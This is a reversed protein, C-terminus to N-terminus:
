ALSLSRGGATRRNPMGVSTLWISAWSGPHTPPDCFVHPALVGVSAPSTRDGQLCTPRWYVVHM